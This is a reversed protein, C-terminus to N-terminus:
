EKKIRGWDKRSIIISGGFVGANHKEIEGLIKEKEEKVKEECIKNYKKDLERITEAREKLLLRCIFGEVDLWDIEEWKDVIEEDFEKEWDEIKEKTEKM